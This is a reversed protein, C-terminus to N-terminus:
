FLDKSKQNSNQSFLRAFFTAGCAGTVKKKGKRERLRFAADFDLWTRGTGRWESFRSAFVSCIPSEGVRRIALVGAALSAAAPPSPALKLPRPMILGRFRASGGGRKSSRRLRKSATARANAITNATTLTRCRCRFEAALSLATSSVLWDVKKEGREKQSRSGREGGREGEGGRERLM